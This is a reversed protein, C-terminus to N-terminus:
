KWFHEYLARMTRSFLQRCAEESKWLLPAIEEYSLEERIRMIIIEKKEKGLEELFSLIKKTEEQLELHNLLTDENSSVINENLALLDREKERLYDVLKHHAISLIWWSFNSKENIQFRDLGEFASLFTESCLDQTLEKNWNTKYFLYRYIKLFNEKYLVEFSTYKGQQFSLILEREIRNM